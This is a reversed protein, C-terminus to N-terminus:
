ILVVHKVNPMLKLAHHTLALTILNLMLIKASALKTNFILLELWPESKPALHVTCLHSQVLLVFVVVSSM